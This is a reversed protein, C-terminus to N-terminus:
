EQACSSPGAVPQADGAHEQEMENHWVTLERIHIQDSPHLDGEVRSFFGKLWEAGRGHTKVEPHTKLWWDAIMPRFLTSKRSSPIRDLLRSTPPDFEKKFGRSTNSTTRRKKSPPERTGDNDDVADRGKSYMLTLWRLLTTYQPALTLM